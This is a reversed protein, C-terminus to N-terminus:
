PAGGPATPSGPGVTSGGPPVTAGRPVPGGAPGSEGPAPSVPAPGPESPPPGGGAPGAGAESPPTATLPSRIQIWYAVHDANRGARLSTGPRLDLVTGLGRATYVLTNRDLALEVPGAATTVRIRHADRDVSALTGDLEELVAGRPLPKQPKAAAQAGPAPEPVKAPAAANPTGAAGEPAKPPPAPTAAQAAALRPVAAALAVSLFLARSTEIMAWTYYAARVGDPGQPLM